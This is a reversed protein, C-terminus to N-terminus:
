YTLLLKNQMPMDFAYNHTYLVLGDMWGNILVCLAATIIFYLFVCLVILLVIYLLFYCLFVTIFATCISM